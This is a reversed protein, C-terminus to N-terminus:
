FPPKLIYSTKGGGETNKERYVSKELFSIPKRM